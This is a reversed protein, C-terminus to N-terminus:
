GHDRWTKLMKLAVGVAFGCLAIIILGVLLIGLKEAM